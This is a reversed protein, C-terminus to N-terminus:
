TIGKHNDSDGILLDFLVSQPMLHHTTGAGSLLGLLGVLGLLGRHRRRRWIISGISGVLKNDMSLPRNHHWHTGPLLGM